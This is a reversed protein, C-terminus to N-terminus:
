KGMDDSTVITIGMSKMSDFVGGLYTHGNITQPIKHKASVTNNNNSEVSKKIENNPLCETEIIGFDRCKKIKKNGIPKDDGIVFYRLKSEIDQM